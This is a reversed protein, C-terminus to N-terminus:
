KNPPRSVVALYCFAGCKPIPQSVLFAGQDPSQSMIQPLKFNEPFVNEANLEPIPQVQDLSTFRPPQDFPATLAGMQMKMILANMIRNRLKMDVLRANYDKLKTV